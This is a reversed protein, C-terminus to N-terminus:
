VVAVEKRWPHPGKIWGYMTRTKNGIAKAGRKGSLCLPQHPM